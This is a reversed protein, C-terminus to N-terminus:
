RGLRNRLVKGTPSKPFSDLFEVSSPIKYSSIKERCFEVVDEGSLGEAVVFAKVKEGGSGGSVGVVLVETIKEHTMLLNEVEYPDVKNGSVNIFLKKRGHIFLYGDDDFMGLDGTHYFGNRFAKESEEPFDVYGDTMSPSRVVIEGVRGPSLLEGTDSVVRIEVNEVPRGVSLRKEAVDEALNISMVGTESSGYLQRPFVGFTGHFSFFTEEGLPAGASIVYRLEPFDRSESIKSRALVDLMFPVAPFVTIEWKELADLVAKRGFGALFHCCAGVSIASVFNGLGYTHSVPISLLIRDRFDWDITTTHNRALAIMNEHTRAVCKPKGTSGTSFLYIAERSPFSVPPLVSSEVTFDAPTVVVTEAGPLASRLTGALPPSTVVLDPRSFEASRRIEETGSAADVPVAVAGARAVSFLSVALEMSNPLFLCVKKGKSVGKRMLFSSFRDVFDCLRGYSYTKEGCRLAPREARAPLNSYLIESYNEM